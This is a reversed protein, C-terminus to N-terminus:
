EWGPLLCCTGRPPARRASVRACPAPRPAWSYSRLGWVRPPWRAGGGAAGGWAARPGRPRLGGQGAPPLLARGPVRGPVRGAREPGGPPAYWPVARPHSPGAPPRCPPAAASRQPSLLHVVAPPSGREDLKWARCGILHPQLGPRSPHLSPPFLGTAPSAGGGETQGPPVIRWGLGLLRTMLTASRHTPPASHGRTNKQQRAHWPALPQYPSCGETRLGRGCRGDGADPRLAGRVEGWPWGTAKNEM